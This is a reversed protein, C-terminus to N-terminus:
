IKLNPFTALLVKYKDVLIINEEQFPKSLLETYVLSSTVGYLQGKQIKEFLSKVLPFYTKNKEILYIFLNTDLALKQGAKIPGM